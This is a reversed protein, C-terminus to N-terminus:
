ISLLMHNTIWGLVPCDKDLKLAIANSYEFSLNICEKITSPYIFYFLDKLDRPEQKRYKLITYIDLWEQIPKGYFLTEESM